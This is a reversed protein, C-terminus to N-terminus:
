EINVVVHKMNSRSGIKSGYKTSYDIVMSSEVKEHSIKMTLCKLWKDKITLFNIKQVKNGLMLFYLLPDRKKQRLKKQELEELAIQNLRMNPWLEFKTTKSTLSRVCHDVSVKKRKMALKQSGNKSRIEYWLKFKQWLVAIGSWRFICCFLEQSVM